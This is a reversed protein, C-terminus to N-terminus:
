VSQPQDSYWIHVSDVWEENLHWLLCVCNIFYISIIVWIFVWGSSKFCDSEMSIQHCPRGDPHLNKLLTSSTCSPWWHEQAQTKLMRWAEEVYFSYCERDQQGGKCIIRYVAGCIEKEHCSSQPVGTVAPPHQWTQLKHQVWSGQLDQLAGWIFGQHLFGADRYAQVTIVSSPLLSLTISFM